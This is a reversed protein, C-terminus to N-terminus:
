YFHMELYNQILQLNEKKKLDTLPAIYIIM